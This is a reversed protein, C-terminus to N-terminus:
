RPDERRASELEGLLRRFDEREVLVALDPDTRVAAADLRGKGAATRLSRVAGRADGARAQVTALGYWAWPSEPKIQSAIEAAFVARAFQKKALLERPVYFSTQVFLAEISRQAARRAYPSRDKEAQERLSPVGLRSLAAAAPLSGPELALLQPLRSSAQAVFRAHAEEAQAQIRAERATDASQRLRAARERLLTLDEEGRLGKFDEAAGDLWRLAAVPDDRDLWSQAVSLVRSWFAEVFEPRRVAMGDRMAVLEMWELALGSEEAPAWQHTGDFSEFRHSAGLEGLRRDLALLEPFNFDTFGALGFFAFPLGKEPKREFPFGGGHGIVGAVEGRRALALLVAARAGGSFGTAYVRRPDISFREHSDEWMARMAETNPEMAEDSRSNNSSVVIWGLREAAARYRELPVTGRRRADFAYLVPWRKQPAYSSPLYLAYSQGPFRRCAVPDLPEGLAFPAPPSAPPPVARALGAAAALLAWGLLALFVGPHSPRM